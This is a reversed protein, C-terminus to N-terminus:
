YLSVVINIGGVERKLGDGRRNGSSLVSWYIVPFIAVKISSLIEGTMIDM